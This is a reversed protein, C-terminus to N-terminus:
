KSGGYGNRISLQEAYSLFLEEAKNAEWPVIVDIEDVERSPLSRPREPETLFLDRAEAYYHLRDLKKVIRWDILTWHDVGRLSALITHLMGEEFHWYAPLTRKLPRVIDGLYAEAADHLLCAQRDHLALGRKVALDAVGV